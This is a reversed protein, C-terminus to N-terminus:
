ADLRLGNVEPMSQPQRNPLNDLRRRRPLAQLCAIYPIVSEPGLGAVTIALWLSPPNARLARISVEAPARDDLVRLGSLAEEVALRDSEAVIDTLRRPPGSSDAQGCLRVFGDNAVLIAGDRDLAAAAIPLREIPVDTLTSHLTPAM